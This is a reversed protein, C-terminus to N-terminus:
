AGDRREVEIYFYSPRVPRTPYTGSPRKDLRFTIPKGTTSGIRVGGSVRSGVTIRQDSSIGIIHFRFGGIDSDIEISDGSDENYIIDNVTGNVPSVVNQPSGSTGIIDYTNETLQGYVVETNIRVPRHLDNGFEGRFPIYEKPKEAFLGIARPMASDSAVPDYPIYVKQDIVTKRHVFVTYYYVTRNVVNVDLFSFDNGEYVLDGDDPNVPFSETSRRLEFQIYIVEPNLKWSLLIQSDMAKARLIPSEIEGETTSFSWSYTDMENPIESLDAADVEVTVTEGPDLLTDKEVTFSYDGATMPILVYSVSWGVSSVNNQFVIDGNIRIVVSMVDVGSGEGDILDFSIDTGRDVDTSLDDPFPNELHPPTIDTEFEGLYIDPM